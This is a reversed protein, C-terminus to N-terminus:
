TSRPERSLVWWLLFGIVPFVAALVFATDYQARDFLRGFLPM